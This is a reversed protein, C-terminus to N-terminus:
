EAEPLFSSHFHVILWRSNREELVGSIRVDKLSITSGDKQLGSFDQTEFFWATNASRSLRIVQETIHFSMEEFIQFIDVLHQEYDRWRKTVISRQDIYFLEDTDCINKVAELNKEAVYVVWTDLISKIKVKEADLDIKEACSFGIIFCVSLLFPSL